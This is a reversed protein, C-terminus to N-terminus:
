RGAWQANCCARTQPERDIAQFYNLPHPEDPLSPLSEQVHNAAMQHQITSEWVVVEENMDFKKCYINLPEACSCGMGCSLFPTQYSEKSYDTAGGYQVTAICIYRHLVEGPSVYTDIYYKKQFWASGGDINCWRVKATGDWLLYVHETSSGAPSTCAIFLIIRVFHHIANLISMSTSSFWQLITWARRHCYTTLAIGLSKHQNIM